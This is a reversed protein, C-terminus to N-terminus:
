PRLSPKAQSLTSRLLTEFRVQAEAAPPQIDKFGWPPLAEPSRQGAPELCHTGRSFETRLGGGDAVRETGLQGTVALLPSPGWPPGGWGFSVEAKWGLGVGAGKVCIKQARWLRHIFNKTVRSFLKWLGELHCSLTVKGKM